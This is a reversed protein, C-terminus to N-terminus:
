HFTTQQILVTFYLWGPLTVLFCPSHEQLRTDRALFRGRVKDELLTVTWCKIAIIDECKKKAKYLVYLLLFITWAQEPTSVKQTLYNIVVKKSFILRGSLTVSFPRIFKLSIQKPFPNNVLWNPERNVILWFDAVKLRMRIKLHLLM